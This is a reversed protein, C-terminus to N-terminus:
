KSIEDLRNGNSRRRKVTQPLKSEPPDPSAASITYTDLASTSTIITYCDYGGPTIYVITM